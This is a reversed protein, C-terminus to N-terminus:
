SVCCRGSGVGRVVVDGDGCESDGNIKERCDM